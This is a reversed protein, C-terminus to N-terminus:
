VSISSYFLYIPYVLIDVGLADSLSEIRVLPTNGTSQSLTEVSTVSQAPSSLLPYFPMCQGILGAIGTVIEDSRLEIPRPVYDRAGEARERERRRRKSIYRSLSSASVSVAVGIALGFELILKRTRLTFHM